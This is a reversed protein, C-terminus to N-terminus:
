AKRPGHGTLHAVEVLYHAGTKLVGWGYRGFYALKRQLHIAYQQRAEDRVALWDGRRALACAREAAESETRSLSRSFAPGPEAVPDSPM